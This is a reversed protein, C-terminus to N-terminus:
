KKAGLAIIADYVLEHAIRTKNLQYEGKIHHVKSFWESGDKAVREFLTTTRIAFIPLQGLADILYDKAHNFKSESTFNNIIIVIPKGVVKVLNVTDITGQLSRADTLTPIAIVNSLKVARALKPDISNYSAGFDFVVPVNACFKIPMSKTKPEIQIIGSNDSVVLDNTVCQAGIYTALNLAIGTKGVGGKVSTVLIKM